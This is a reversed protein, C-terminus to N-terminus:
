VCLGSGRLSRGGRGSGMDWLWYGVFGVVVVGRKVGDCGGIKLELISRGGDEGVHGAAM